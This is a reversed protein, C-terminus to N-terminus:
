PSVAYEVVVQKAGGAAVKLPVRWQLQKFYCLAEKGSQCYYIEATVQLSGDARVTLPVRLPLAHIAIGEKPLGEVSNTPVPQIELRSTALPNLKYGAPLSLNFVLEVEGPSVQQTQAQIVEPRVLAQPPRLRELGRLTLTEVRRTKLDAVRIAHNNTDAIYLKGGAISVGGPEDFTPRDGDRLGATGDGLFTEIRGTALDYRKIKNNYTDAVYISGEHYVVGLPHQLRARRGEGDIDGFDFLDGGVLTEVRGNPNLDAARLSSSESDAFYLRKGDTTMGSPQALASHLLTSDFRAERGSGAYPEVVGKRLDLKWLQHIGAMAIYLTEGVLVVDWPSSLDTERANGGSPWYRAQRGTGAVTGVRRKEFDVVRIAHNETDAVYLVRGDYAMGQPHRFQAEEFSGDRYGEEGSGVVERLTGDKLSVVVIRNNGSDAIFLQGSREDALVKGPFELIGRPAKDRELKLNLPTRDIEGRPDHKAILEQIARDFPEYIGEGSMAGVVKGNPDILVVTPWARAGYMSWVVMDRDNVVPHEIRYRLIAQRINETEKETTFKASHVGIVVLENPYKQELRKLDPIIHMCNICCYTWFDLMVIKGRLDKLRLPRDTNLWELGEPFEPANVSPQYVPMSASEQPTERHLQTLALLSLGAAVSLWFLPKYSIASARNM